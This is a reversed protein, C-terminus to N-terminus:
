KRGRTERYPALDLSEEEHLRMALVGRRRSNM